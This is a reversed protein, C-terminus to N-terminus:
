RASLELEVKATLAKDEAHVSARLEGTFFDSFSKWVKQDGSFLFQDKQECRIYCTKMITLVIPESSAALFEGKVNLRLPLLMGEPCEVIWDQMKGQSFDQIFSEDVETLRIESLQKAAHLPFQATSMLTLWICGLLRISKM